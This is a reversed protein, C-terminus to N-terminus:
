ISRYCYYRGGRHEVFETAKKIIDAVNWLETNDSFFFSDNFFEINEQIEDESIKFKDGFFNKGTRMACMRAFHNKPDNEFTFLLHKWSNNETLNLMLNDTWFSKGRSPFGSVVMLKGKKIRILDDLSSWGTSVGKNVKDKYLDMIQHKIDDYTITRDLTLYKASEFAEILFDKNKVLLENSDKAGYESFDVLKCREKGLRIVLNDRLLRGAEDSDVAIVHTKFGSIWDFCNDIYEMKTSSAGAPVSVAPIGLEAFSMCDFEGETWVLTDTMSSACMDEVQKMGYLVPMAEKEQRFRKNEGRYKVNVLEGDKYIPMVIEKNSNYGVDFLDATTKSIGGRRLIITFLLNVIM